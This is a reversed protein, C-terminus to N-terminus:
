VEEGDKVIVISYYGADEPIDETSRYVAEGEMGCREVMAAEMGHEKLYAKVKGMRRGSKMLVKTGSLKMGEEIQFTAPIVHLMEAKEVLGQNLRASVALFSPIGNIIETDYGAAEVRKHIYIYTSYICPDGLTLFAATKGEELIATITREAKKHSEELLMKDKIMPMDVGIVTRQKLDKVAQEAIRYAATEEPEKGPVILVDAEEIIRVAKLTLLEPDGPGVGVGYLKGKM